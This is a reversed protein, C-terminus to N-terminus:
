GCCNEAPVTLGRSVVSWRFRSAMTWARLDDLWSLDVITGELDRRGVLIGDCGDKSQDWALLRMVNDWVDLLWLDGGSREGDDAIVTQRAFGSVVFTWDEIWPPHNLSHRSRGFRGFTLVCRHFDSPWGQSERRVGLSNHLNWPMDCDDGSGHLTLVDRDLYPALCVDLALRDHVAAALARGSM